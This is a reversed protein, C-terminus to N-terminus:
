RGTESSRLRGAVNRTPDAALLHVADVRVAFRVDEGAGHHHMLRMGTVVVDTEAAAAWDSRIPLRVRRWEAEDGALIADRVIPVSEESQGLPFTLVDAASGYLLYVLPAVDWGEIEIWYALPGADVPGEVAVALGLEVSEADPVRLETTAVETTCEPAWDPGADEIVLGAEDGALAPGDPCDSSARWDQWWGDRFVAEAFTVSWLAEAMGPGAAAETGAGEEADTATLAARAPKETVAGTEAVAVALFAGVAAAHATEAEAAAAEAQAVRQRADALQARRANAAEEAKKAAEAAPGYVREFYRLKDFPIRMSDASVTRVRLADADSDSELITCALTRGSRLVVRDAFRVGADVPSARLEDLARRADTLEANAHPLQACWRAVAALEAAHAPAPAPPLRKAADRVLAPLQAWTVFDEENDIKWNAYFRWAQTYSSERLAAEDVAMARETFPADARVAAAPFCMAGIRPITLRATRGDFTGDRGDLAVDNILHLVTGAAEARNRGVAEYVSVLSVVVEADPLRQVPPPPPPPPPPPTPPICLAVVVVVVSALLAVAGVGLGWPGARQKEASPIGRAGTRTARAASSEAPDGHTVHRLDHIVDACSAYRAAPDKALMKLIVREVPVSIDSNRERPSTPEEFQHRQLTQMPNEDEFPVVGTVMEYMLVGVSYIDSQHTVETGSAQEPSMYEPTGVIGGTTTLREATQLLAIGFDMVKVRNQRDIIINAPKIDRHVIGAEHAAQLGRLVQVVIRIAQSVPLRHQRFIADDLTEGDVYEMAYFHSGRQHGIDFIQVINRHNLRAIAQAERRFREIFGRDVTFQPALVKLAVARNLRIQRARYVVGMGGKGLEEEILYGGLQKGIM